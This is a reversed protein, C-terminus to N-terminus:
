ATLSSSAPVSFNTRSVQNVFGQAHGEWIWPDHSRQKLEDADHGRADKVKETAQQRSKCNKNADERETMLDRIRVLCEQADPQFL